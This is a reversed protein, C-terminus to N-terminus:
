VVRLVEEVLKFPLVMQLATGQTPDVDRERAILRLFGINLVLHPVPPGFEMGPQLIAAMDIDATVLLAHRFVDMAHKLANDRLTAAKIGTGGLSVQGVETTLAAVLAVDILGRAM